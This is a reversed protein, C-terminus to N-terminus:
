KKAKDADKDVDGKIAPDLPGGTRETAIKNDRIPPIQGEAVPGDAGATPTGTPRTSTSAPASLNLTKAGIDQPTHSTPVPPADSGKDSEEEDKKAKKAKKTDEASEFMDAFATAQAETLEVEQDATLGAGNFSRGVARERVRYTKTEPTEAQKGKDNEAM